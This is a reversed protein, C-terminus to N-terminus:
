YEGTNGYTMALVLKGGYWSAHISASFVADGGPTLQAAACLMGDRSFTFEM